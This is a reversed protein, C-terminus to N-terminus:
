KAGGVPPNVRWDSPLGVEAPDTVVRGVECDRLEWGFGTATRVPAPMLPVVKLQALGALAAPVSDFESILHLAALTPPLLGIRGDEAQQLALSPRLWEASSAETGVIEPEVGPPLAAAFFDTDHRHPLVEPTIWRAFRVLDPEVSADVGSRLDVGTEEALERLAAARTTAASEVAGDRPEVGGGPFVHMEAAAAMTPSRRLLYVTLDGTDERLLAVTAARRPRPPRWVRYDQDVVARLREAVTPLPERM